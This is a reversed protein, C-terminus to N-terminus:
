LRLRVPGGVAPRAAIEPRAPDFLRQNHVLGAQADPQVEHIARYAAAHALLMHRLVRLMEVPSRHGPAHIGELYAEAAYVEPENITCWLQVQDSLAAVTHRVFREFRPLILPNLWGGQRAMWLPTTFHHLTVMPEIGRRRLGALMEGYRALAAPDFVGEEPEIRSWEVSLRHTNQGLTAMLDFDREADRWWGCAAGSRHGRWIAGPQQEFAWWDNNTNEGEVQHASTATGWLFGPPFELRDSTM